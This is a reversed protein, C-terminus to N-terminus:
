STKGLVVGIVAGAGAFQVMSLIPDVLTATLNSLNTVGYLTLDFGLIFLLGVTAGAKLGTGAASVGAWNGLVVTLLAGWVLQGLGLAWFEFAERNVGTASGANAAFFDAFVLEYMTYGLVFLTIGGALTSLAFRKATM